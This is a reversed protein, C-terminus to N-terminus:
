QNDMEAELQALAEKLEKETRLEKQRSAIEIGELFTERAKPDLSLREYLKGLHYYLGVYEPDNAYIDEFLIRAKKLDEQKTFELALAFKSFTDDPDEKINRALQKITEKSAPM